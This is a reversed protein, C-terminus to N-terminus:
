QDQLERGVLPFLERRVGYRLDCSSGIFCPSWCRTLLQPGDQLGSPGSASALPLVRTQLSPALGLTSLTVSGPDCFLFQLPAEALAASSPGLPIFLLRLSLELLCDLEEFCGKVHQIHAKRSSSRPPQSTKSTQCSSNVGCCVESAGPLSTRASGTVQHLPPM